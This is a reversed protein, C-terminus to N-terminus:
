QSLPQATVTGTLGRLRVEVPRAGKVQFLIRVDERATGTPLFVAGTTWADPAVNVPHADEKGVSPDNLASAPVPDGNLTFKVGGPLSKELVLGQGDPDNTPPSGSWYDARDPAVRFHSGNTEVSFRYPRGEEIAKGRATAMAARVADVAGQLKYYGYMGRLSPLAMVSILVLVACVLIVEFLTYGPRRVRATM